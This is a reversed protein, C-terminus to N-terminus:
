QGNSDSGAAVWAAILTQEHVALAAIFDDAQISGAGTERDGWGKAPLSSDALLLARMAPALNFPGFVSRGAWAKADASAEADALIMQARAALATRLRAQMVPNEALLEILDADEDWRIPDTM